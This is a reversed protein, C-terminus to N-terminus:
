FLPRARERELLWFPIILLNIIIVVVVIISICFNSYSFGLPPTSLLPVDEVQEPNRQRSRVLM